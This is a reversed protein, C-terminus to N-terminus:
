TEKPKPDLHACAVLRTTCAAARFLFGPMFMGIVWLEQELIISLLVAEYCMCGFGLGLKSGLYLRVLFYDGGMLKQHIGKIEGYYMVCGHAMIEVVATTIGLAVIAFPNTIYYMAKISALVTSIRDIVMDLYYGLKSRQNFFRAAEGDICDLLYSIAYWKVFHWNHNEGTGQMAYVLAVVRFYDIINPIYFFEKMKPPWNNSEDDSAPAM